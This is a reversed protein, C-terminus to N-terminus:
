WENPSVLSCNKHQSKLTNFCCKVVPSSSNRHTGQRTCGLYDKHYKLYNNISLFYFSCHKWDWGKMSQSPLIHILSHIAGLRLEGNAQQLPAAQIGNVTIVLGLFEYVNSRRLTHFCKQDSWIDTPCWWNPRCNDYLQPPPSLCRLVTRPNSTIRDCFM